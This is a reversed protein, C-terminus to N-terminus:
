IPLKLRQREYFEDIPVNAIHMESDSGIGRDRYGRGVDPVEGLYHGHGRVMSGEGSRLFQDKFRGMPYGEEPGFRERGGHFGKIKEPVIKGFKKAVFPVAAGLLPAGIDFIHEIPNATEPLFSTLAGALDPLTYAGEDTGITTRALPIDPLQKSLAQLATVLNYRPTNPKDYRAATQRPSEPM